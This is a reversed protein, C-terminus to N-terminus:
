VPIEQRQLLFQKIDSKKNIIHVPKAPTYIKLINNVWEQHKPNKIYLISFDIGETIIPKISVMFKVFSMAKLMPPFSGKTFDFIMVGLNGSDSSEQLCTKLSDLTCSNILDDDSSDWSDSCTLKLLRDTSWLETNLILMSKIIIDM